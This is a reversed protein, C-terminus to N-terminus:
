RVIVGTTTNNFRISNVTSSGLLTIGLVREVPALIKALWLDTKVLCDADVFVRDGPFLQYNTCTSGGQVVARWDVMLIQDCPNGCPAPRAVWVRWLSSVLATGQLNSIADLVTENGTIPLRYVQQGYGGNDYIVYYWLSNYAYVDVAVQPNIVYERLQNEVVTKIQGLTMGAVYVSGYVGLSITGDPRVLHEGRVQQQGRFQALSVAVQPNRLVNSLHQRISSQIQEVTLGQVRVTGYGFGLNVTGEPSIVFPGNIPQNPLTETVQVMLIELPEVRYPPKPVLRAADIVLVDPPAVTYPPLSVKNIERPIPGPGGPGGACSDMGVAPMGTPAAAMPAPTTVPGASPQKTAPAVQGGATATVPPLTAGPQAPSGTNNDSRYSTKQVNASSSSDSAYKGAAAGNAPNASASNSSAGPMDPLGYGVETTQCGVSGLSMGLLAALTAALKPKGRHFM